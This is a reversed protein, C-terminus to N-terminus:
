FLFIYFPVKVANKLPSYNKKIGPDFKQRKGLKGEQRLKQLWRKREKINGRRIADLTKLYSDDLRRNMSKMEDYLKGCKQMTKEESLIKIFSLDENFSVEKQKQEERPKM